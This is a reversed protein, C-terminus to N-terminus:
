FDVYRGFVHGVLWNDGKKIFGIQMYKKAFFESKEGSNCLYRMEVHATGDEKITLNEIMENAVGCQEGVCPCAKEAMRERSYIAKERKVLSIAKEKQEPTYNGFGDNYQILTQTPDKSTRFIQFYELAKSAVADRIAMQEPSFVSVANKLFSIPAPVEVGNACELVTYVVQGNVRDWGSKKRPDLYVSEFMDCKEDKKRWADSLDTLMKEKTQRTATSNRLYEAAKEFNEDVFALLAFDLAAQEM